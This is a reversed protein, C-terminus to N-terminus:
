LMSLMRSLFQHALEAHADFILHQRTGELNLTVLKYKRVGFDDVWFPKM